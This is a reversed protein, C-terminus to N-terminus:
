RSKYDESKQEEDIEIEKETNEKIEGEDGRAEDDNDANMKNNKPFLIGISYRKEPSTTLLEHDKDPISIESGPGLLEGRILNIYEERASIMTSKNGM